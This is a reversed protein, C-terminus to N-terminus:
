KKTRVTKVDSWDSYLKKVKGNVRVSRYTRVRVYYKKKGKLKSIKKGVAYKKATTLKAAPAKFSKETSYQIQYGDTKSLIKKWTVQMGRSKPTVRKLVTKKPRITFAATMRGTYNGGLKVTVTYVGPSVRGKSYSVQYDTGQALRRGESDKVIVSPKKAKGDYM